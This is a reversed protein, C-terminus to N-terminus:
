DAASGLSNEHFHLNDFKNINKEMKKGLLDFQILHDYPHTPMM